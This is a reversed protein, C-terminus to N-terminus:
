RRTPSAIAADVLRYEGLRAHERPQETEDEPELGDAIADATMGVM